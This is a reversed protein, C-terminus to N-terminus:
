EEEMRLTIQTTGGEFRFNNGHEELWKNAVEESAFSIYIDFGDESTEKKASKETVQAPKRENGEEEIFGTFELEKDSMTEILENLKQFDWRGEIKNLAINLQKEETEGLDVVVAEVENYGLEKLVNLRQHGGVVTNNRGNVIIPTVTGFKALSRKLAEYEKSKSELMKRPNYKAVNLEHIAFIKTQM